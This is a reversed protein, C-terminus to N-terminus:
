FFTNDSLSEVSPSECAASETYGGVWMKSFCSFSFWFGFHQMCWGAVKSVGGCPASHGAQGPSSPPEPLALRDRVFAPRGLGGLSRGRSLDMCLSCGHTVSCERKHALSPFVEASPLTDQSYLQNVYCFKSSTSKIALLCISGSSPSVPLPRSPGWDAVSWPPCCSGAQGLVWEHQNRTREVARICLEAGRPEARGEGALWWGLVPM